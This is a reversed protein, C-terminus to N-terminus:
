AGIDSILKCPVLKNIRQFDDGQFTKAGVIALLLEDGAPCGNEATLVKRNFSSYTIIMGEYIVERKRKSLCIHKLDDFDYGAGLIFTVIMSSVAGSVHIIM